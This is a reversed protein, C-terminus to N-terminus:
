NRDCFIQRNIWFKSDQHSEPGIPLEGSTTWKFFQGEFAEYNVNLDETDHSLLYVKKMTPIEISRDVFDHNKWKRNM